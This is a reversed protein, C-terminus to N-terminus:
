ENSQNNNTINNIIQVIRETINTKYYFVSEYKKKLEVEINFDNITYNQIKEILPKLDIFVNGFYINNQDYNM